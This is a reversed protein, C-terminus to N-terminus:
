KAGYNNYVQDGKELRARTVFEIGDDSTIWSVRRKPYHNMMDLLPLLVENNATHEDANDRVVAKSFARSSCVTAAWLYSDFTLVDRPIIDAPIAQLAQKYESMYLERRGDVAFEAPTGKLILLEEENFQLPTHFETPLIDIYPKWFSSDSAVFRQHILFSCLMPRGHLGADSGDPLISQCVKDTIVLKHPICAYPENEPIAQRTYV